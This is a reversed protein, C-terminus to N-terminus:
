GSAYDRVGAAEVMLDFLDTNRTFHGIAESGPGMAALEVYDSTHDGGLWNVSTYNAQIAGLLLDPRSKKRYAAQYEGRLADQIMEAEDRRISFQWAEEVRDQIQRYTSNEDLESLIWSNTYQFDAIRDFMPNSDGYRDGAANVGPNANGHDTTIIVLTDDRGEAFDLVRGIAEDFEIQDYILGGTDDEHAAHDVRGGEIQLLFGDENQDLRQLAADTMAPLRPVQQQHSPMNRHDLVYPLHTDYFIGLISGEHGWYNLDQKSRAVTYGKDEFGQYLNKGDGRQDSDFHRRGGGMLVDYERELYQAAIEDESWRKPMNIGFGAPTAHTIRTTTVLGTGRGADRFIELITRYTEGEQSMNLTENFVRHGSGWSSAAAASGTVISNAAAMDMFGRRVRGEDYLRIWNSRRDEHRRLHLDAMTLTGASMGDSVLFIVNKADGPADIDSVDTRSQGNATGAMGGTGLVMAGLAGTKLFDRRSTSPRDHYSDSVSRTSMPECFAIVPYSSGLVVGFRGGM